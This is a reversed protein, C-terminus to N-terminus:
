EVSALSNKGKFFSGSASYTQQQVYASSHVSPMGSAWRAKQGLLGPEGHGPSKMENKSVIIKKPSKKDPM